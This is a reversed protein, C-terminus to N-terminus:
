TELAPPTSRAGPRAPSISDTQRCSKVFCGLRQASGVTSASVATAKEASLCLWPIRTATAWSEYRMLREDGLGSRHSRERAQKM